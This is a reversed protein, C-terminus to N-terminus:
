VQTLSMYQFMNMNHYMTMENNIIAYRSILQLIEYDLTTNQADMHKEERQYAHLHYIISANKSKPANVHLYHM